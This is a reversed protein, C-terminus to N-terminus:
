QLNGITAPAISNVLHSLFHGWDSSAYKFTAQASADRTFHGDAEVGVLRDRNAAMM